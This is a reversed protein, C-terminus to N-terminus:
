SETSPDIIPYLFIINTNTSNSRVAGQDMSPLCGTASFPRSIKTQPKSRCVGWGGLPHSTPSYFPLTKSTDLHLQSTITTTHPDIEKQLKPQMGYTTITVSIFPFHTSESQWHSSLTLHFKHTCTNMFFSSFHNTTIRIQILVAKQHFFTIAHIYNM